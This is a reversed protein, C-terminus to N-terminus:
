ESKSESIEKAQNNYAEELQKIYATASDLEQVKKAILM